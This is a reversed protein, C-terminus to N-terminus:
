PKGTLAATWSFDLRYQGSEIEGDLDAVPAQWVDITLPSWHCLTKPEPDTFQVWLLTPHHDAQIRVSSAQTCRNFGVVVLANEEMEVESVFAVEQPTVSGDDQAQLVTLLEDSFTQVEEPTRLIGAHEEVVAALDEGGSTGEAWSGLLSGVQQSESRPVGLPDTSLAFPVADGVDSHAVAWAELSAAAVECEVEQVAYRLIPRDDIVEPYVQGSTGCTEDGGIVLVQSDLDVERVPDVDLDSPLASLWHEVDRDTLLLAAPETADWVWADGDLTSWRTVLEGVPTDPDVQGAGGQGNEQADDSCAMLMTVLVLAAAVARRRFARPSDPRM